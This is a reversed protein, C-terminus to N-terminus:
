YTSQAPNSGADKLKRLSKSNNIKSLYDKLSIDLFTSLRMMHHHNIDLLNEDITITTSIKIM